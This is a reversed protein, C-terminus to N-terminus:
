ISPVCTSFDTFPILSCSRLTRASCRLNVKPLASYIAALLFILCSSPTIDSCLCEISFVSFLQNESLLAASDHLLYKLIIVALTAAKVPIVNATRLDTSENAARSSFSASTRLYM